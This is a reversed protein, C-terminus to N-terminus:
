PVEYYFQYDISKMLSRVVASDQQRTGIAPFSVQVTAIIPASPATGQTRMAFSKVTGSFTLGNARAVSSMPVSWSFDGTGAQLYVFGTVSLGAPLQTATTVAFTVSDTGAAAKVCAGDVFTSWTFFRNTATSFDGPLTDTFLQADGQILVVQERASGCGDTPGPITSSSCATLGALVITEAALIRVRKWNLAM